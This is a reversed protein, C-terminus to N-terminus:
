LDINSSVRIGNKPKPLKPLKKIEEDKDFRNTSVNILGLTIIFLFVDFLRDLCRDIMKNMRFAYLYYKM